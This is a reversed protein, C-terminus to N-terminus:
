STSHRVPTCCARCGSTCWRCRTPAPGGYLGPRNLQLDEGRAHRPAHAALPEPSHRASGTNLPEEMPSPDGAARTSTWTAARRRSTPPTLFPWSKVPREWDEGADVCALLTRIPLRSGAFVPVGRMVGPDAHIAPLLPEKM